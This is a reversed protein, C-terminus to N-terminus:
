KKERRILWEEFRNRSEQVTLFPGEEADKIGESLEKQTLDGGAFKTKRRNQIEKQQQYRGQFSM